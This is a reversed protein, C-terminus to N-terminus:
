QRESYDSITHSLNHWYTYTCRTSTFIIIIPLADRYVVDCTCVCVSCLLISNIKRKM